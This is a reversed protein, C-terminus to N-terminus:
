VEAGGLRADALTFWSIQPALLAIAIGMGCVIGISARLQRLRSLRSVGWGAALCLIPLWLQYYHTWFHGPWAIALETGVAAAFLIRGNRRPFQAPRPLLALLAAIALPAVFRMSWPFLNAAALAAILNRLPNGSYFRPYVFMTQWFLWGRDTRAFYAFLCGWAVVGVLGILLGRIM